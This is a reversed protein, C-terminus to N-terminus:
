VGFYNDGQDARNWKTFFRTLRDVELSSIPNELDNFIGGGFGTGDADEGEGGRAINAFIISRALSVSAGSNYIAGGKADGGTGAEGGLAQNRTFSSLQVTANGSVVGLAGGAGIGGVGTAGGHGGSASNSVFITSIIKVSPLGGLLGGSDASPQFQGLGIAGGIGDGGDGNESDGGRVVNESFFSNFVEVEAGTLVSLAGGIALGGTAGLGGTASNHSFNSNVIRGTEEFFSISM